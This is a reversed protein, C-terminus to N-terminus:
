NKLLRQSSHFLFTSSSVLSAQPAHAVSSHRLCKSFSPWPSPPSPWLMPPSPWLM